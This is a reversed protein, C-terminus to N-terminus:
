WMIEISRPFWPPDLEKVQYGLEGLEAMFAPLNASKAIAEITIATRGAMSAGEIDKMCQEMLELLHNQRWEHIKTALNQAQQATILKM